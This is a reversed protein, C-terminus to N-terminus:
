PRGSRARVMADRVRRAASEVAALPSGAPLVERGVGIAVAGAALYEALNESTPGSTPVLPIDPLPGRVLRLFEPGGLPGAPFVKVLPAGARHAALIEAPTAAGPVYLLGLSRAEALVAPDFVPSLAFRGGARAVARAQEPELVTGGGVLLNPDRALEAVADLAGPTTLTIELLPLGGRAAARCVDLLPASETLRVALFIGDALVAELTGQLRTDPPQITRTPM